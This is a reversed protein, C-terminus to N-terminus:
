DARPDPLVFEVEPFDPTNARASQYGRVAEALRSLPNPGGATFAAGCGVCAMGYGARAALQDPTVEAAARCRPCVLRVVHLESLLFALLKRSM